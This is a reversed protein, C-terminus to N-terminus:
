FVKWGNWQVLSRRACELLFNSSAPPPMHGEAQPPASAARLLIQDNSGLRLMTYNM